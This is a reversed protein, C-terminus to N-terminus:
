PAHLFCHGSLGEIIQTHKKFYSKVDGFTGRGQRFRLGGLLPGAKPCSLSSCALWLHLCLLPWGLLPLPAGGQQLPRDMAKGWESTSWATHVTIMRFPVRPVMDSGVRVGKLGLGTKLIFGGLPVHLGVSHFRGAGRLQGRRPLGETSPTAGTAGEWGLPTSVFLSGLPLLSPPGVFLLWLPLLSVPLTSFLLWLPRNTSPM